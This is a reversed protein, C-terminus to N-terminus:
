MYDRVTCWDDTESRRKAENRVNTAEASEQKYPYVNYRPCHKYVKMKASM